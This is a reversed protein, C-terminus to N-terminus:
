ASPQMSSQVSPQAERNQNEVLWKRRPIHHLVRHRLMGLRRNLLHTRELFPLVASRRVLLRGFEVQLRQDHPLYHLGRALTDSAAQRRGTSQYVEALNLYLQAQRRGRCLATHCLRESEAWLGEAAGLALGYYSMYYPSEPDRKSASRLLEVAAGADGDRLLALGERFERFADLDFM